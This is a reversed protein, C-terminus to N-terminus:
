FKERIGENNLAVVNFNSKQKFHIGLAMLTFPIAMVLSVIEFELMALSFVAFSLLLIPVAYLLFWGDKKLELENKLM